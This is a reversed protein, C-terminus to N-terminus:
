PDKDGIVLDLKPRASEAGPIALTPVILARVVDGRHWTAGDHPEDFSIESVQGAAPLATFGGVLVSFALCCSVRGCRRM